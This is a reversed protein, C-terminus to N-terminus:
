DGNALRPDITIIQFPRKNATQEAYKYCEATGGEKRGDYVAILIDARDVMWKNRVHMKWAAYPGPTVTFVVCRKLLENYHAKQKDSWLGDQGLCPVAAVVPITLEMSVEAAWQDVGLAMGSITGVIRGYQIQNLATRIEVKIVNEYERIPFTIGGALNKPRHGTFAVIIDPKPLNVPVM